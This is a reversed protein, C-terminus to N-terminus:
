SFSLVRIKKGLDASLHAMDDSSIQDMFNPEFETKLYVVHKAVEDHVKGIETKFDPEDVHLMLINELNERFSGRIKLFTKMNKQMDVSRKVRRLIFDELAFRKHFADFMDGAKELVKDSDWKSINANLEIVLDDIFKLDENMYNKVNM